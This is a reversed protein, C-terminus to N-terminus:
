RLPQAKTPYSGSSAFRAQSCYPLWASTVRMPCSELIMIEAPTRLCARSIMILRNPEHRDQFGGDEGDFPWSGRAYTLRDAFPLTLDPLHKVVLEAGQASVRTAKVEGIMLMLRRPAEANAFERWRTLRRDRIEDRCETNFPEPIYLWDSLARGHLTLDSAAKLLRRRVVAWTRKGEFNPHWYTLDAVHWLHLLLDGLSLRATSPRSQGGVRGTHPAQWAPDTLTFDLKIESDTREPPPRNPNRNSQEYSGPPQLYSSPCDPAHQEGTDPMRKILYHHGLRAVYMPVGQPTCLCSPRDPARHAGALAVAFDPDEPHYREGAILYEPTHGHQAAQTDM